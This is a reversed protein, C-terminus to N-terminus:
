CIMGAGALTGAAGLTLYGRGGLALYRRAGAGHCEPFKM